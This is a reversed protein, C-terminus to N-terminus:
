NSLTYVTKSDQGQHRHIHSLYKTNSGIVVVAEHHIQYTPLAQHTTNTPPLVLQVTHQLKNVPIQGVEFETGDHQVHSVQQCLEVQRFM